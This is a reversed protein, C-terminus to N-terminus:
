HKNLKDCIDITKHYEACNLDFKPKSLIFHNSKKATLRQKVLSLCIQKIKNLFNINEIFLAWLYIIKNKLFM